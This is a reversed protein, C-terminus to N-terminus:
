QRPKGYASGRVDHTSDSRYDAYQYPNDLVEDHPLDPDMGQAWAEEGLSTRLHDVTADVTARM